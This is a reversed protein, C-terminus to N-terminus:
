NREKWWLAPDQKNGWKCRKMLSNVSDGFMPTISLYASVEREKM